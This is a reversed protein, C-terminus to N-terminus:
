RRASWLRLQRLWSAGGNKRAPKTESSQSPPRVRVRLSAGELVDEMAETPIESPNEPATTETDTPQPDTPISTEASDSPGPDPDSISQAETSVESPTPAEAPSPEDLTPEPADDPEPPPFPQPPASAAPESVPTPPSVPKPSNESAPDMEDLWPMATSQQDTISSSRSVSSDGLFPDNILATLTPESEGITASQVSTPESMSRDQAQQLGQKALDSLTQEPKLSLVLEYWEAARATENLGFLHVNGLMLALFARWHDKLEQNSADDPSDDLDEFLETAIQRAIDFRESAYAREAEMYRTEFNKDLAAIWNM